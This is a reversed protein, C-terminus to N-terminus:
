RAQRRERRGEPGRQRATCRPFRVHSPRSSVEETRHDPTAQEAPSASEADLQPDRLSFREVLLSRVLDEHNTM